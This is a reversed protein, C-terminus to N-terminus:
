LAFSVASLAKPCNLLRSMGGVDLDELAEVVPHPGPVSFLDNQAPAAAPSPAASHGEVTRKSEPECLAKRAVAVEGSPLRFLTGPGAFRPMDNGGLPQNYAM